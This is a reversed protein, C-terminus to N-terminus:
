DGAGHGATAPPADAAEVAELIVVAMPGDFGAPRKIGMWRGKMAREGGDVSAGTLPDFWTVRVTRGVLDDRGGYVGTRGNSLYFLWVGEGDTLTPPAFPTQEPRLRNFDYRELLAGLHAYYDLRPRNEEPLTAPDPVVNYWAANQWYHTAYTGAFVCQYFRDLCVLPETYAGDFVSYPMTREYAGHEINFVPKNPHAEAVRVMRDHLGPTWEQISIFDVEDPFASCYDYDHVTVMRDHADLRRLREIRRTVYGLDDRGYALAEKSIDWVLHPYAQYRKAVYDFYRDDAESEAAPWNVQKNWVYIMLHAAVGREGLHAIVRDLRRFFEVNLTSNDPNKNDGGFPFVRPKNYLHAPDMRDKEGWTADYAFVNMVVQNFGNGAIVDVMQETKPIGGPNEADLAFLWDCEFARLVYPTGDAYAFRRPNAPDVGIPGRNGESAEAVDLTGAQGDLGPRDSRTVYSWRGATPPAFRVLYSTGGDYFGPVTVSAGGGDTFTADFEVAFPDDPVDGADFALESVRWREGTAGAAFSATLPVILLALLIPLASQM